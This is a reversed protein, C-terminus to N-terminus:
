MFQILVIFYVITLAPLSFIYPITPAHYSKIIARQVVFYMVLLSILVIIITLYLGAIGRNIYEGSPFFYLYVFLGSICLTGLLYTIFSIFGKKFSLDSEGKKMLFIMVLFSGVGLTFFTLLYYPLYGM